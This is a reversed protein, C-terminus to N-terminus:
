RCRRCGMHAGIQIRAAGNRTRSEAYSICFCHLIAWSKPGLSGCLLGSLLEQNIIPEAGVIVSNQIHHVEKLIWFYLGNNRRIIGKPIRYGVIEGGQLIIKICGITELMAKVNWVRDKTTEIEKDIKWMIEESKDKM